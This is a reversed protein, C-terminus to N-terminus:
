LNYQRQNMLMDIQLHTLQILQNLNHRAMYHFGDVSLYALSDAGIYDKIEEPSKSASILEATTSVDFEMTRPVVIRRM